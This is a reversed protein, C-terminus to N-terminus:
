AASQRAHIVYYKKLAELTEWTGTFGKPIVFAADAGFTEAHGAADTLRCKGSILYVFEDEDYRVSWKGKTSTWIGSFLQGSADTFVNRTTTAPKGSLVNGPKGRELKPGKRDFRVIKIAAQPKKTTRKAM